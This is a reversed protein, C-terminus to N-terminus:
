RAGIGVRARWPVVDDLPLRCSTTGSSSTFCNSPPGPGISPELSRGFVIRGRLESGKRCGEDPDIQEEPNTFEDRDDCDLLIGDAAPLLGNEVWGTYFQQVAQAEIADCNLVFRLSKTGIPDDPSFPDVETIDIRIRLLDIVDCEPVSFAAIRAWGTSENRGINETDNSIRQEEVGQTTQFGKINVKLEPGGVPDGIETFVEDISFNVFVYPQYQATTVDLWDDAIYLRTVKDNVGILNQFQNHIFSLVFLSAPPRNGKQGLDLALRAGAHDLTERLIDEVAPTPVLAGNKYAIVEGPTFEVFTTMPLTINQKPNFASAQPNVYVRMAIDDLDFLYEDSGVLRFLEYEFDDHTVRPENPGIFDAQGFELVVSGGFRSSWSVGRLSFLVHNMFGFPYSRLVDQDARRPKGTAGPIHDLTPTASTPLTADAPADNFYDRRHYIRYVPEASAIEEPTLSAFYGNYYWSGADRDVLVQIQELESGERFPGFHRLPRWALKPSWERPRRLTLDVPEKHVVITRALVRM